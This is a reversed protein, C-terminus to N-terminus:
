KTVKTDISRQAAKTAKTDFSVAADTTNTDFPLQAVKTAKTDFPLQAVKLLRPIRSIPLSRSPLMLLIPITPLRPIPLM